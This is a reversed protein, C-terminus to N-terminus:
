ETGFFNHFFTCVKLLREAEDPDVNHGNVLDMKCKEFFPSYKCVMGKEWYKDFIAVHDEPWDDPESVSELEAM